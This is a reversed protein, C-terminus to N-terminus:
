RALKDTNARGAPLIFSQPKEQFRLAHPGIRFDYDILRFHNECTLPYRLLYANRYNDVDFETVLGINNDIEGVVEEGNIM